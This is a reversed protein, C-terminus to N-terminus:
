KKIISDYDYDPGHASKATRRSLFVKGEKIYDGCAKNVELPTDDDIITTGNTEHCVGNEKKECKESVGNMKHNNPSSNSFGNQAKGNQKMAEKRIKYNKSYFNLFLLLFITVNISIFYTFGAAYQCRPSNHTWACYSLMLAFQILQMKTVYKKWWLYKQFRPGLGSLLYYTYMVVHVISNLLALIAGEGGAAFKLYSWSYLAMIVHHYVHLFTLQKDKKRLVFFVTDLLETFKAFFYWWGLDLLMPNQTNSPYRCGAYLIGDRFLNLKFVKSCIMVALVVQSANYYSILKTIRLPPRNKMVRPGIRIFLLYLVVVTVIPTPSSMMFWSDVLASKGIKLSDLYRDMKELYSM